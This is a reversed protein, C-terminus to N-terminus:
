NSSTEQTSAQKFLIGSGIFLIAFVTNLVFIGFVGPAGWSEPKFIFLAIIPVLFQAAATVFLARSMGLPKFRAVLAAVFGIVLVLLYLMNAANDENGIIGVAGNIWVLALGTLVGLALGARYQVSKSRRSIFEYTFGTGLLMVAAFIFDFPTWNVGTDFQMAILPVLLICATVIFIRTINKNMFYFTLEKIIGSSTEFFMWLAYNLLGRQRDARERLLDGFTQEM